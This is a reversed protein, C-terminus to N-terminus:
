GLISLDIFTELPKDNRVILIWHDQTDNVRCQLVNELSINHYLCILRTLSYSFSGTKYRLVKIDHDNIYEIRKLDWRTVYTNVKIRKM